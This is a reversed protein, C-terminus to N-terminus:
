VAIPLNNNLVFMIAHEEKYWTGMGMGELIGLVLNESV